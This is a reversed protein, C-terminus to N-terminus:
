IEGQRESQHFAKVADNVKAAVAVLSNREHQAHMEFEPLIEDIKRRNPIAGMLWVRGRKTYDMEDLEVAYVEYTPEGDAAASVSLWSLRWRTTEWRRIPNELRWNCGYDEGGADLPGPEGVLGRRRDEDVFARVSPYEHVGVPRTPPTRMAEVTCVHGRGADLEADVVRRATRLEAELYRQIDELQASREQNRAFEFRVEAVMKLWPRSLRLKWRYPWAVNRLEEPARRALEEAEELDRKLDAHDQRELWRERQTRRLQELVGREYAVLSEFLSLTAEFEVRRTWSGFAPVGKLLFRYADEKRGMERGRQFADELEKESATM